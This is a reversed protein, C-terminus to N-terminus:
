TVSLKVPSFNVISIRNRGNQKSQYLAGDAAKILSSSGSERSPVCSACGLSITVYESVKSTEHAMRLAEVASMIKKAVVVAGETGTESLVIIFEEGGYRAALDGARSVNKKLVHAIKRLCEDGAQHGYTDNYAKFFDIDAMILSLPRGERSCRGWERDLFAEFSRRNAMDTLKDTLSLHELERNAQELEETREEVQLTLLKERARLQRVRIRFGGLVMAAVSLGCLVYFFVTQYFYPKLIFDFSAGTRNWVGDNNCAIVRFRYKGPPINTFYAVRRTGVDVWDKDFGELKIKFKVKEPALLSLGTYHFEFIRSGAPLRAGEHFGGAIRDVIFEEIIVPPVVQNATIHAPDIVVVGRITAIWLKGDRTRFGSPSGHNCESNKIGDAVSYAVSIISRIGGAAFDELEKKSVRFIGKNSGMWLDGFEDELIEFVTNDFLGEDITFKTMQGNKLRILGVGDTGIWLTGSRDEYLALVSHGSLGGETLTTLKGEKFRNLGGDTGIWLSGERSQGLIRVINNALGDKTTYAAFVGDKLRNLGENTGIWLSGELDEYLARVYDSVLGNKTTYTTFVGGKLRSLGESTGFWLSGERGEYIARVIDAALGEHTTYNTFRGNQLHSVGGGETGIWVSGDRSQYIPRVRDNALGEQTTYTLFKGDRLRNLGGGFTGIWLSGENDEGWLSSVIDSSLGERTTYATFTGNAFRNLGGGNTGIWLNGDRDERVSMVDNSTLGNRTTYVTLRGNKLRDLGGGRTGIWLNEHRDEYLSLVANSSLGEATTIVTFTGDKFRALGGDETGVWLTGKLDEYVAIINNSPLGEKMSYNTFQGARFRSLGGGATGIWLGGDKSGCISSVTCGSLTEEASIATFRGDKLQSLGGEGTGIWLSGEKDVFLASVYSHRIEKTNRSHFVTFRMGDFRALGQQTGLWLYGDLSQVIANVSNQPLGDDTQWVNHTYQTIAKKPDLAFGFTAQGFLFIVFLLKLFERM